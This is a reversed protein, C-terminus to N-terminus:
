QLWHQMHLRAQELLAGQKSADDIHPHDIYYQAVFDTSRGAFDKPGKIGTIVFLTTRNGKRFVFAKRGPNQLIQDPATGGNAFTANFEIQEASLRDVDFM